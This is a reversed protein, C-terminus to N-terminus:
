FMLMVEWKKSHYDLNVESFFNRTYEQITKMDQRTSRPRRERHIYKIMIKVLPFFFDWLLKEDEKSVVTEGKNDKLSFLKQFANIENVPLGGFISSAHKLFFERDMAKIEDWHQYSRGIVAEIITRKDMDKIICAVLKILDPNVLNYGQKTLKEILMCVFELLGLVNTHFRDEEPPLRPQISAM